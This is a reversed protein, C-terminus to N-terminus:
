YQQKRETYFRLFIRTLKKEFTLYLITYNNLDACDFHVTRKPGTLRNIPQNTPLFHYDNQGLTWTIAPHRPLDTRSRLHFPADTGYWVSVPVDKTSKWDHFPVFSDRFISWMMTPPSNSGGFPLFYPVAFLWWRWSADSRCKTVHDPLFWRGERTSLLSRWCSFCRFRGCEISVLDIVVLSTGGFLVEVM